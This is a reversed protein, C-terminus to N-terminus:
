VALRELPQRARLHEAIRNAQAETFGRVGGVMVAPEIDRARLVGHVEHVECRAMRAIDGSSFYKSTKM